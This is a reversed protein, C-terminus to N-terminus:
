MVFRFYLFFQLFQLNSLKGEHFFKWIDLLFRLKSLFLSSAKNIELGSSLCPENGIGQMAKYIKRAMQMPVESYLRFFFFIVTSDIAPRIPSSYSIMYGFPSNYVLTDDDLLQTTVIRGITYLYLSLYHTRQATTHTNAANTWRTSIDTPFLVCLLLFM